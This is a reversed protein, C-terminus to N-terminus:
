TNWLLGSFTDIIRILEDGSFVPKKNLCDQICLSLEEVGNNFVKHQDVNRSM